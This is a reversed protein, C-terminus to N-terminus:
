VPGGPARDVDGALLGLLELFDVALLRAGSRWGPEVGQDALEWAQHHDGRARALRAHARTAHFLQDALPMARAKALWRKAEALDARRVAAEALLCRSRAAYVPQRVVDSWM